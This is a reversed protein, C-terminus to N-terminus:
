QKQYSVSIEAGYAPVSGSNFQISNSAADYSFQTTREGDVKVVISSEVPKGSLAFSGLLDMISRGLDSLALHFDGRIDSVTAATEHSAAAYRECGTSIGYGSNTRNIDCISYFKVLGADPKFSKLFNTYEAPARSSQDEEDSLLVVALYADPRIFTSAYKEMFGESAALGKEYGSGSTGVQVLSKFDAMFQSSNEQAKAATLKVDSGAVMKGKRDATSIDTTTIAMKFDIQTDIFGNIFADFNVGLADQEDDMSKSNDIIWLIDLKKRDAQQFKESVCSGSEALSPDKYANPGGDGAGPNSHDVNGEDNGHGNDDDCSVSGDTGGTTTGDTGGTTGGTTSGDTGGTSTGDTGGTSGGDTYGGTSSGSTTGGETGGAVGGDVGGQTSGNSGSNTGGQGGEDVSGASDPNRSPVDLYEKEYYEDSNCATFSTCIVLLLCIQGIRSFRKSSNSQFHKM